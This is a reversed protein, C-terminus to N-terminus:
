ILIELADDMAATSPSILPVLKRSVPDIHILLIVGGCRRHRKLNDLVPISTLVLVGSVNAHVRESIELPFTTDNESCDVM